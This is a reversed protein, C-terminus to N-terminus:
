LTVSPEVKTTGEEVDDSDDMSFILDKISQTLEKANNDTYNMSSICALCAELTTAYYGSVSNLINNTSFKEIIKCHAAINTIKSKAVIFMFISLTQDGDLKKTNTQSLERYFDEISTTILEATKVVTKLKHIPSRRSSLTKLCKIASDYPKGSIYIGSEEIMPDEEVTELVV